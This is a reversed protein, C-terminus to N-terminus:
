SLVGALEKVGPHRTPDFLHDLADGRAETDKTGLDVRHDTLDYKERRGGWRRVGLQSLAKGVEYKDVEGGALGAIYDFMEAAMVSTKNQSRIDDLAHSALLFVREKKESYLDRIEKQPAPAKGNGGAATADDMVVFGDATAVLNKSPRKIKYRTSTVTPDFEFTTDYCNWVRKGQFTASVKKGSEEFSYGTLVGSKDQWDTFTAEGLALHRSRGWPTFAADRCKVVIDTQFQFKSNLWQFSQITGTISMKRKRILQVAKALIQQTNTM